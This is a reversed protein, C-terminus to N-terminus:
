SVSVSIPCTIGIMGTVSALQMLPLDGYQTFGTAGWAGMPNTHNNLFELTTAAPPYVLTSSFGPLRAALLRDALYPLSWLLGYLLGFIPVAPPGFRTWIAGFGVIFALTLAAIVLLYGPWLKHDRLYRMVLAPGIWALLPALWSGMSFGVLLAGVLLMALPTMPRARRIETGTEM